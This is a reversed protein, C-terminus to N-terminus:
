RRREPRRKWAPNWRVGFSYTPEYYERQIMYEPSGQYSGFVENNLNLGSVVLEMGRGMYVSGQADVQFHTYFYVDSLPGKVGGGMGDTYQYAQINAENYTLGVATSLRGYDYTPTINFANPDTRQLPPHDSRGPINSIGSWNHGYNADLGLGRWAGSLNTFHQIYSMEFGTVWAHGANIPQQYAWTGKDTSPAGPPLYNQFLGSQTVIPNRLYKYFTGASFMGFAKFYHAYLVDFDDGTEALLNQNGLTVSGKRAGNGSRTWTLAQAIDSYDPRSLGRSYVLRLQNNSDFGYNLSASPLVTTYSGSFSNPIVCTSNPCVVNPDSSDLVTFNHVGNYTHEVRLGAYFRLHDSLDITNMLYGAYVPETMHFIDPDVGKTNGIVVLQNIHSNFWKNIAPGSALYGLPYKGGLYFHNDTHDKPFTTLPITVGDPAAYDVAYLDQYKNVNRATGGFQFRAAHQGINYTKGFTGTAELNLQSAQGGDREIDSNNDIAWNATNYAEQYCSSSWQPLYENTTTGQSYECNSNGPGVYSFQPDATSGGTEISRSASLNWSYWTTGLAQNGGLILASVSEDDSNNYPIELGPTGGNGPGDSLLNVNSNDNLTYIWKDDNDKFDAFLGKMFIDGNHIRYDLDGNLGWHVRDFAYQRIDMGDFWKETKGSPLTALDPVPEIDDIGRGNYDWSGSVLFGLKKSAGFRKGYTGDEETRGRGNIIPMYGGDIGFSYDPRNTPMMTELDVSGGIGSGAMDAQLTKHLQISEVADAPVISFKFQRTAAKTTALDIGDLTAHTFEPALGRVEIYKGAGEDRDLSVNPLRGAADAVNQNPLSRIVQKPMVNVITPASRETNIAQAEGGARAATVIVSQRRSALHLEANVTATKGAVVTVTEPLTKFGVYSVRVEYRGPPLASRFFAGQQDTSETIGKNGIEVQAGRLVAGSPDTVTGRISGTQQAMASAGIGAFVLLTALIVRCIRMRRERWLQKAQGIVPRHIEASV